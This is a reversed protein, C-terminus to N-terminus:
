WPSSRIRIPLRTYNVLSSQRFPLVLPTGLKQLLDHTESAVRTVPVLPAGKSELSEALKIVSQLSVNVEVKTYRELKYLILCRFLYLLYIITVNRWDERTMRWFRRKIEIRISVVRTRCRLTAGLEFHFFIARERERWNGEGSKRFNGDILKWRYDTLWGLRRALERSVFHILLGNGRIPSGNGTSERVPPLDFISRFTSRTLIQDPSRAVTRVPFIARLTRGSTKKEEESWWRPERTGERPARSHSRRSYRTSSYYRPVRSTVFTVPSLCKERGRWTPSSCGM